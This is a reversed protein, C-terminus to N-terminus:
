VAVTNNAHMLLRIIVVLVVIPTMLLIMAMRRAFMARIVSLVEGSDGGACNLVAKQEESIM